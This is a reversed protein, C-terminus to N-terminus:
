RENHSEKYRFRLPKFESGTETFFKSFFEYYQLRVVQIAVILGELVIIVANGFLMVLLGGASFTGGLLATMTFVIYSLVAHSLAFAGVRLFSVSNSIYTSCTELIEVFGGILAAFVGNELVPREGEMLRSLPEGFFLLALPVGLCVYDFWQFGGGTIVARLAAFVAYLFFFAGCIGTKSFIAKAPHGLAFQNRINIALGIVNVVFGIALTFGFFAFLRGMSDRTPMLALIEDRPPGWLGTVARSFPKLVNANAFFEGTLVGMVMSSCGIALFVPSFHRWRRLLSIKGSALALGLLFFVAGQGLDGFMVGFMLTFFFAVIPTPDVTGYLPAGYSFVMREFGKVLANHRFRVPVKETGDRVTPIESPDYIRIAIRGETLEDLEHMLTEADLASIWGSLRYVLQTSELEGRVERIQASLTFSEILSLIEGRYAAAYTERASHAEATEAAATEMNAKLGELVGEPVGSFDKPVELQRFGFKKLESDLAFRGKKSAAALIRGPDDGLPIIVARGGASERLAGLSAPDIRGIRFSFFTLHDLQDWAVRLNSFARAEDYAGRAEDLRTACELERKQLEAAASAIRSAEARSADTPLSPMGTFETPESLRLYARASHLASLTGLDRDADPGLSAGQPPTVLTMRPQFDAKTGLYELARDIDERLIMLEVLKMRSKNRM